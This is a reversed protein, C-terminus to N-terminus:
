CTVTTNLAVRWRSDRPYGTMPSAPDLPTAHVIHTAVYDALPDAAHNAGVRDLLYGLRQIWPAEATQRAATLLKEGNILDSLGMIALAINELGGSHHPYAALDLATAEPSSVKVPGRLTEFTQCPVKAAHQHAIFRVRVQGCEIDPRNKETVVQFYEPAAVHVGYFAAASLLGVYYPAGLHAMLPEVFQEPPPCAAGMHEPSVLVHFGRMPAAVYGRKKLRRIAAQAAVESM